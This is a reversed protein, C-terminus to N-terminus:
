QFEILNHSNSCEFFNAKEAKEAAAKEAAAQEAAPRAEEAAAVRAKEEAALRAKEEAALRAKQLCLAFPGQAGGQALLHFGVRLEFRWVGRALLLRACVRSSQM